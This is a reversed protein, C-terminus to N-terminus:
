PVSFQGSEFDKVIKRKFEDSYIRKKRIAKLNAKM